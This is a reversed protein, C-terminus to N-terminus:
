FFTNNACERCLTRRMMTLAGCADCRKFYPDVPENDLPKEPHPQPPPLAPGVIGRLIPLATYLRLNLAKLASTMADHPLSDYVNQAAEPHGLREELIGLCLQYQPATHREPPLERLSSLAQQPR